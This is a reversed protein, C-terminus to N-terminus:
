PGFDRNKPKEVAESPDFTENKPKELTGSAHRNELKELTENPDLLPRPKWNEPM